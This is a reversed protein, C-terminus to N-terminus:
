GEYEVTSWDIRANVSYAYLRGEMEPDGTENLDDAHETADGLETWLMSERADDKDTGVVFLTLETQDSGTVSDVADRIEARAADADDANAIYTELFEILHDM